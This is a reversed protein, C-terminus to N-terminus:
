SLKESMLVSRMETLLNAPYYCALGGQNFSVTIAALTQALINHKKM